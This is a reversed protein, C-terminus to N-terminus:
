IIDQRMLICSRKMLTHIHVFVWVCMYPGVSGCVQQRCLVFRGKSGVWSKRILMQACTASIYVFSAVSTSNAKVRRIDCQAYGACNCSTMKIKRLELLLRFHWSTSDHYNCYCTSQFCGAEFICRHDVRLSLMVRGPEHVSVAWVSVSPIDDFTDCTVNSPNTIIAEVSVSKFKNSNIKLLENSVDTYVVPPTHLHSVVTSSWSHNIPEAESLWYQDM